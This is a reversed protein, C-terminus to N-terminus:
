KIAYTLNANATIMLQGASVPVSSAATSAGGGKGEFIPIIGGSTSVNINQLDGLEVGAAAAISEAEARAQAIAKDRAEALAQDKNSVDFSIGNITNAGSRVVADLMNGLKSLDRVTIYITNEVVYYKRSIVGDPGYDNMPYVNFNTTQVDKIDVGLAKVADAVKGAQVNNTNLATSVDDAESRVGVYVYALDPVLYVEGTGYANITRVQPQAVPNITCAALTAMIMISALIFGITRKM